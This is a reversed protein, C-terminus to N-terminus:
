NFNSITMASLMRAGHLVLETAISGKRRRGQTVELSRSLAKHPLGEQFSGLMNWISCSDLIGM